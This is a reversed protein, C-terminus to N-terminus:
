EHFEAHLLYRLAMNAHKNNTLSATWLSVFVWLTQLAEIQTCSIYQQSASESTMYESLTWRLQTNTYRGERLESTAPAQKDWSEPYSHHCLGTHFEFHKSPSTYFTLFTSFTSPPHLLFLCNQGLSLIKYEVIKYWILISNPFITKAGCECGMKCSQKHLVTENKVFYNTNLLWHELKLRTLHFSTNPCVWTNNM